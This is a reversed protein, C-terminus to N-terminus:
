RYSIRRPHSSLALQYNAIALEGDSDYDYGSWSWLISALMLAAACGLALRFALALVRGASEEASRWHALIRTQLHAPMAEAAGPGPRAAALLRQLKVEHENM